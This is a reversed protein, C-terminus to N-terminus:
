LINAQNTIHCTISNHVTRDPRLILTQRKLSFLKHSYFISVSIQFTFIAVIHFQRRNFLLNRLM